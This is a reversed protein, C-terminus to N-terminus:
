IKKGCHQNAKKLGDLETTGAEVSVVRGCLAAYSSGHIGSSKRAVIAEEGRMYDVFAMTKRRAPTDSMSSMVVDFKHHFLGSQMTQFSNNVIKSGKLGMTKALAGALDIDVGVFRGTRKDVSEMPPYAPHSGVTLYGPHILTLHPTSAGHAQARVISVDPIALALLCLGAALSSRLYPAFLLSV